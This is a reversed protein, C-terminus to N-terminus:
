SDPVSIEGLARVPARFPSRSCRIPARWRSPGVCTRIPQAPLWGESCRSPGWRLSAPAMWTRSWSNRSVAGSDSDPVSPWWSGPSSRTMIRRRGAALASGFVSRSSWTGATDRRRQTPFGDALFAGARRLGRRPRRAQNKTVRLPGEIAAAGGAAGRHSPVPVIEDVDELKVRGYWVGEPYVVVTIGFACADMCGAANARVEGKLGLKAVLEKFRSLVAESGKEACSGKPDGDPRRNTCTFIHLRYPPM